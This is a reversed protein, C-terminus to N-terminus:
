KEHKQLTIVSSYAVYTLEQFVSTVLLHLRKKERQIWM